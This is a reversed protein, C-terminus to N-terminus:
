WIARDRFASWSRTAPTTTSFCTSPARESLCPPRMPRSSSWAGRPSHCSVNTTAAVFRARKHPMACSRDAIIADILGGLKSLEPKLDEFARGSYVLVNGGGIQHWGRLLTALAEPQEFPEGGSVTLGDALSVAPALADLVEAVTTMGKGVAWTDMSVCGPCRISCGQFWVGVRQGPGLTTIPFHIRSLALATM